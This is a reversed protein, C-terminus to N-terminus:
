LFGFEDRSNIAHELIEKVAARKDAKDPYPIILQLFCTAARPLCQMTDDCRGRVILQFDETLADFGGAPLVRLGWFNMLKLHDESTLEGVVEWFIRFMEQAETPTIDSDHIERTKAQWENIDIDTSGQIMRQFLEWGDRDFLPTLRREVEQSEAEIM